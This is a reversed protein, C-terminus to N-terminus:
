RHMVRPPATSAACVTNQAQYGSTMLCRDDEVLYDTSLQSIAPCGIQALTRDIEAFLLELVHSVGAEGRAALCYLTAM